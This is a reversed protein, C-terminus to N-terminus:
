KNQYTELLKQSHKVKKAWSKLVARDLSLEKKLQKEIIDM